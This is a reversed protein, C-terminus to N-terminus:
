AAVGVVKRFVVPPASTQGRPARMGALRQRIIM